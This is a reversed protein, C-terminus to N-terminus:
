RRVPPGPPPRVRCLWRRRLVAGEAMATARASAVAPGVQHLGDENQVVLSATGFYAGDDQVAAWSFAHGSKAKVVGLDFIDGSKQEGSILARRVAHLIFIRFM